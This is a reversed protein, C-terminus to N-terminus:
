PTWRYLWTESLAKGEREIIMRLEILPQNETDLDFLARYGGIEEVYFGSVQVIKGKSAGLNVSAGEVAAPASINDGAFDVVIRRRGNPGRGIRTAIARALGSKEPADWGWHIRYSFNAEQGKPIPTKPRWYAIVNRNFEDRSPIEALQVHGAGWDGLPEIWSSPRREFHGTADSYADFRRERQMLGFGKPNNDIFSSLQLTEPNSLPRWIWEGSGAWMQLGQVDHVAGRYDDAGSRDNPAFFFSGALPGLGIHTLDVRPYLTVEVDCVTADGPHFSFRYLATLSESDLLAHVVLSSAGTGPREIWFHTFTPFEEGTPEGLKLILGRAFQGFNQGRALSRFLTGFQFILAPAFSGNPGFPAEARFGSYSLPGEPPPAQGFDFQEPAYRRERVIGDEIARITVPTQFQLGTPLLDVVFGRGEGAWFKADGKAQIARFQEASWSQAAKPLDSKLPTYGQRAKEQAFAVLAERSFKQGDAIGVPVQAQAGGVSSLAASVGGTLATALLVRRDLSQSSM